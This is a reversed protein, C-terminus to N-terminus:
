QQENATGGKMKDIHLFRKRIEPTPIMCTDQKGFFHYRNKAFLRYLADRIPKPFIILMYLGKWLGNMKKCIRLLATSETIISDLRSASIHNAAFVSEALSSKLSAFRFYDKRDRRIIFQVSQNCFNCVGDFLIIAHKYPDAFNRNM